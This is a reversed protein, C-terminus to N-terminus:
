RSAENPAKNDRPHGKRAKQGCSPSCGKTTVKDKVYPKGCICISKYKLALYGGANRCQQCRAHKDRSLMPKSCTACPKKGVPLAPRFQDTQWPAAPGDTLFM